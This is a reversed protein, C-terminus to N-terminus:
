GGAQSDRRDLGFCLAEDLAEAYTLGGKGSERKYFGVWLESAKAHHAELWERFEAASKFYVVKM